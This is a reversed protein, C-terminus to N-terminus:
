RAAAPTKQAKTKERLENVTTDIATLIRQAYSVVESPELERIDEETQDERAFTRHFIVEEDQYSYMTTGVTREVMLLRAKGDTTELVVIHRAATHDRSWLTTEDAIDIRRPFNRYTSRLKDSLGVVTGIIEEGAKTKAKDLDLLTKNLSNKANLFPFAGENKATPKGPRAEHINM